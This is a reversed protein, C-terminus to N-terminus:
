LRSALMAHSVIPQNCPVTFISTRPTGSDATNTSPILCIDDAQKLSGAAALADDYDVDNHVQDLDGVIIALIGVRESTAAEGGIKKWTSNRRM